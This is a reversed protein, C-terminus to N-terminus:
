IILVLSYATKHPLLFFKVFLCLIAHWSILFSITESFFIFNKMCSCHVVDWCGFRFYLLLITSLVFVTFLEPLPSSFYAMYRFITDDGLIVCCSSHLNHSKLHIFKLLHKYHLCVACTSHSRARTYTHIYGYGDYWTGM